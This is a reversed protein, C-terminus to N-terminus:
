HPEPLPPGRRRWRAPSRPHRPMGAVPHGPGPRKSSVGGRELQSIRSTSVGMHEAVDTQTLGLLRRRDALRHGDIYAQQLRRADTLAKDGGADAVLGARVENWRPFRTM